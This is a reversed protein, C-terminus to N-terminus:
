LMKIQPSREMGHVRILLERRLCLWVQVTRVLDYKKMYETTFGRLFYNRQMNIRNRYALKCVDINM